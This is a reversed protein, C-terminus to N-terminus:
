AVGQTSGRGPSNSQGNRSLTSRFDSRAKMVPRKEEIVLKGNKYYGKKGAAKVENLAVRQRRTLDNHISVKREKLLQRNAFITTKDESHMLKIIVPRTRGEQRHGLRHARAIDRSQLNLTPIANLTDIVKARCDYFTENRDEDLGYIVLNDRRSRAEVEDFEKDMSQIVDRQQEVVVELTDIKDQLTLIDLKMTEQDERMLRIEALVQGCENRTETVDGKLERIEGTMDTKLSQIERIITDLKSTSDIQDKPGPNSEIDGCLLLGNWGASPKLCDSCGRGRLQSINKAGTWDTCRTCMIQEWTQTHMELYIDTRSINEVVQFGTCLVVSIGMCLILVSVLSVMGYLANTTDNWESDSSYPAMKEIQRTGRPMKFCGIRARWLVLDVMTSSKHKRAGKYIINEVKRCM